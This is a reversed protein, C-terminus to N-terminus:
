RIKNIKLSVFFKLNINYIINKLKKIFLKKKIKYNNNIYINNFLLKKYFINRFIQIFQISSGLIEIHVFALLRLM